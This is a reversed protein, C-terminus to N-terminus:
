AQICCGRAHAPGGGRRRLDRLHPQGRLLAGRGSRGGGASAWWKKITTAGFSLTANAMLAVVMARLGAFLSLILSAEQGYKYLVSLILMFVFAPIGFASTPPAAGSFGRAKLGVYAASQMATAGPVTQCLAVGDSFSDGSLWHKKQVALKKIYAIM